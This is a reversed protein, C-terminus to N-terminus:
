GLDVGKIADEIKRSFTMNLRNVPRRVFGAHTPHEFEQRWQYPVGVRLEWHADAIKIPSNILSDRLAGTLVPALSGMEEALDYAMEQVADAVAQEAEEQYTALIHELDAFDSFDIIFMTDSTQPRLAM